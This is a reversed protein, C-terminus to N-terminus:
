KLVASIISEKTNNELEKERLSALIKSTTNVIFQIFYIDYNTFQRASITKPIVSSVHKDLIMLCYLKLEEPCTEILKSDNSLLSLLKITCKECYGCMNEDVYKSLHKFSKNFQKSNLKALGDPVVCSVMMNLINITTFYSYDYLVHEKIPLRTLPNLSINFERYLYDLYLAECEITESYSDPYTDNLTYFFNDQFGVHINCGGNFNLIEELFSALVLMYEYAFAGKKKITPKVELVQINLKPYTKVLDRIVAFERQFCPNLKAVYAILINEEKVGSRILTSLNYWSEKGGTFFIVHKELNKATSRLSKLNPELRATRAASDSAVFTLDKQGLMARNKNIFNIDSIKMTMIANTDIHSVEPLELLTLLIATKIFVEEYFPNRNKPIPSYSIPFNIVGMKQGVSSMVVIKDQKPSLIFTVDTPIKTM